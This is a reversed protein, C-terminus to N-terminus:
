ANGADIAAQDRETPETGWSAPFADPPDDVDPSTIRPHATDDVPDTYRYGTAIMAADLEAQTPQTDAM